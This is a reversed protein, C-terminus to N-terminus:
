KSRYQWCTPKIETKKRHGACASEVVRRQREVTDTNAEIVKPKGSLEGSNVRFVAKGTFRWQGLERSNRGGDVGSRGFFHPFLGNIQELLYRAMERKKQPPMLGVDQLVFHDDAAFERTIEPWRLMGERWVTVVEGSDDAPRGMNLLITKLVTDISETQVWKHGPRKLDHEVKVRTTIIEYKMTGINVLVIRRTLLFLWVVVLM